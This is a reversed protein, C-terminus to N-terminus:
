GGYAMRVRQIHIFVWGRVHRACWISAILSAVWVGFVYVATAVASDYGPSSWKGLIGVVLVGGLPIAIDERYWRWKEDRLLRRHMIPVNFLIYGSNLVLWVIAAGAAGFLATMMITAPVLLIASALNTYLALQPWGAASQLYLPVSALGNLATGLILLSVILHTHEATEPNRTWLLILERSFLAMTVAIPLLAVAMFQCSRHYLDALHAEDRLEVLQAFRPFLATNLPVIISWLISAVTSALVYYGFKDLPLLKSLLMKDLQTLSLGVIANASVGGAFRWIDSLRRARFKPRGDSSVLSWWLLVATTATQLASVLIQWLFFSQVSPSILWLVLVAGLGRLTGMVVLVGNVLVQRQLGLLGSQYLSFPFQLAIVIGMLRIANQVAITSLRDPHLWGNTILPALVIVILGMLLSLLWYIVELTRVLDRQEQLKGAQVSLRALERNLTLGLGLDLVGFVSQLVAFFGVLGYAEIGMFRLYLPIFLIGLLGTWGRGILNAIVNRKLQSM